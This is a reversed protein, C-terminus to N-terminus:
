RASNDSKLLGLSQRSTFRALIFAVNRPPVDDTKLASPLVVEAAVMRKVTNAQVAIVTDVPM